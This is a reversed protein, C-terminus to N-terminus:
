LIRHATISIIDQVVTPMALSSGAVKRHQKLEKGNCIYSIGASIELPVFRVCHHKSRIENTCGMIERSTSSIASRKKKRLAM